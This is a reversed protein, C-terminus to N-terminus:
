TTKTSMVKINDDFLVCKCFSFYKLNMGVNTIHELQVMLLIKEIKQIHTSFCKKITFLKSKQNKSYLAIDTLICKADLKEDLPLHTKSM